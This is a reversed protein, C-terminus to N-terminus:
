AGRSPGAVPTPCGAGGAETPEAWGSGGCAECEEWYLGQEDTRGFGRNGRCAPCVGTAKVDLADRLSDLHGDDLATYWWQDGGCHGCAPVEVREGEAVELVLVATCSECALIVKSM